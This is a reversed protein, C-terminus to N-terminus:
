RSKRQQGRGRSERQDSLAVAAPGQRSPLQDHRETAEGARPDRLARPFAKSADPQWNLIWNKYRDLGIVGARFRVDTVEKDSLGCVIAWSRRGYSVPLAPDHTLTAFANGDGSVELFGDLPRVGIPLAMKIGGGPENWCTLAMGRRWSGGHMPLIFTSQSGTSLGIAGRPGFSGTHTLRDLLVM